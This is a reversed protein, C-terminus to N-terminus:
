VYKGWDYILHEFGLNGYIKYDRFGVQLLAVGTLSAGAIVDAGLLRLRRALRMLMRDVAIRPTEDM